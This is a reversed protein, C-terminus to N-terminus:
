RAGRMSAQRASGPMTSRRPHARFDLVGLLLMTLGLELLGIAFYAAQLLSFPIYIMQVFIWILCSFGAAAALFEAAARRRLLAVFALGHPASVLAILAVGPLAYSTFPSGALYDGPPVLVSGLSADWSGIILAIGGALATVAVFALACLLVARATRSM